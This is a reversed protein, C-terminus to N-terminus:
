RVADKFCICKGSIYKSKNFDDLLVGSSYVGQKFINAYLYFGTYYPFVQPIETIVYVSHYTDGVVPSANTKFIHPIQNLDQGLSCNNQSGEKTLKGLGGLCIGSFPFYFLEQGYYQM